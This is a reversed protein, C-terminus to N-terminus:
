DLDFLSNDMPAFWGIHYDSSTTGDSNMQDHDGMKRDDVRGDAWAINATKRHRFHISPYPAWASESKQSVVFFRPEAFPYQILCVRGDIRKVMATDSFVLTESPRKIDALRTSERCGHGEYGVQWIHSGLYTLNYGYGGNGQEYDAMEPSLVSYSVKEPCQVVSRSLYSALPGKSSDFPDKISARYGYWRHLNETYIDSAGPVSYGRHENAYSENALMLQRLNNKCVIEKGQSRSSNLAPILIAMLLSIISIVVLIELLTM